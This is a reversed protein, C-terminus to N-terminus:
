FIFIKILDNFWNIICTFVLFILYFVFFINIILNSKLRCTIKPISKLNLFKRFLTCVPWQVLCLRYSPDRYLVNLDCIWLECAFLVCSTLNLLCFAVSSELKWALSPEFIVHLKSCNLQFNWSSWFPKSNAKKNKDRKTTENVVASGDSIVYFM